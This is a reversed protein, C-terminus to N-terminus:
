RTVNAALPGRELLMETHAAVWKLGAADGVWANWALHTAGIQLEYCHHRHPADALAEPDGTAWPAMLVREWVHAAGIGAHFAGWFTCWATDFLFDGRQSCKWSFVATIRTADQSILVNGHLLDGHILDRREPCAGALDGVRAECARFLRDLKPDQALVPRWGRVVGGPDDALSDVLWRRWTSEDASRVGHWAGPAGPEAPVAHMAGLLRVITPGVVPAEDPRVTELFRGKQRVSIAYAGGFADGVALVAPVPLDPGDLAMARRDAEFAARDSGFRVVFEQSEISYAFATSWFGGSLPGLAAIPCGHWRVLFAEVEDPSPTRAVVGTMNESRQSAANSCGGSRGQVIGPVSRPCVMLVDSNGVRSLGGWGCPEFM